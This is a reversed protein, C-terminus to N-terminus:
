NWQGYWFDLWIDDDNGVDEAVLQIAVAFKVRYGCCEIHHQFFQWGRGRDQEIAIIRLDGIKPFVGFRLPDEKAQLSSIYTCGYRLLGGVNDAADMTVTIEFIFNSVHRM